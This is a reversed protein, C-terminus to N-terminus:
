RWLLISAKLLIHPRRFPTRQSPSPLIEARHSPGEHYLLFRNEKPTTHIHYSPGFENGAIELKELRSAPSNEIMIHVLAEYPKM